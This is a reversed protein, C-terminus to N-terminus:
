ESEGEKSDGVYAQLRRQEWKWKERRVEIREKNLQDVNRKAMKLTSILEAGVNCRKAYQIMDGLKYSTNNLREPIEDDPFYQLFEAADALM